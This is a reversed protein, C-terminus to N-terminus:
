SETEFLKYKENLYKIITSRIYSGLQQFGEREMDQLLLDVYPQQLVFCCRVIIKGNRIEIGKALKEAM